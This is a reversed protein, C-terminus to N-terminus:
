RYQLFRYRTEACRYNEKSGLGLARVGTASASRGIQANATFDFSTSFCLEAPRLIHIVRRVSPRLHLSIDFRRAYNLDEIMCKVEALVAASVARTYMRASCAEETIVTSAGFM